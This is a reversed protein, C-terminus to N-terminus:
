ISFFGGTPFFLYILNDDRNLRQPSTTLSISKTREFIIRTITKKIIRSYYMFICTSKNELLFEMFSIVFIWEM